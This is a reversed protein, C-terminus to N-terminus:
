ERHNQAGNCKDTIYFSAYGFATGAAKGCGVPSKFFIGCGAGVLIGATAGVLSGAVKCKLDRDDVTAATFAEIVADEHWVQMISAAIGHVQALNLASFDATEWATSGEAFRLEAIVTEGVAVLGVGSGDDDTHVAISVRGVKQLDYSVELRIGDGLEVVPRVNELGVPTQLSDLFEDPTTPAASAAPATSLSAAILLPISPLVMVPLTSSPVSAAVELM